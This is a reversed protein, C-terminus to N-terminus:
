AQKSAMVPHKPNIWLLYVLLGPSPYIIYLVLWLLTKLNLRKGSPLDILLWALLTFQLTLFDFFASTLLPDSFSIRFYETLIGTLSYHEMMGGAPHYLYVWVQIILFAVLIGFVIGRKTSSAM